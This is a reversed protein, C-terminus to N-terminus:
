KRFGIIDRIQEPLIDPIKYPGKTFIYHEMKIEETDPDDLYRAHTEGIVGKKLELFLSWEALGPLHALYLTTESYNDNLRPYAPEQYSGCDLLIVQTFSMKDRGCVSPKLSTSVGGLVMDPRNNQYGQLIIEILPDIESEFEVGASIQRSLEDIKKEITGTM